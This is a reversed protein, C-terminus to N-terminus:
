PMVWWSFRWVPVGALVVTPRAPGDATGPAGDATGGLAFAGFARGATVMSVVGTM